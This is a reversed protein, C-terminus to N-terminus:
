TQYLSAALEPRGIIRGEGRRRTFGVADFHELIEIALKRGSKIHNKFNVVTIDTGGDALAMLMAAYEAMVYPLAYRNDNLKVAHGRRAASQLCAVVRKKEMGTAAVLESVLPLQLQRSELERELKRWGALEASALTPVFDSTKIRGSALHLKGLRLQESLVARFLGTPVTSHLSTQLEIAKIGQQEPNERQSAAVATVVMKTASAWSLPALAYDIGEFTFHRAAITQLLAEREEPRLNWAQCFKTLNIPAPSGQLLDNLAAQPSDRTMAKLYHLRSTHAKGSRPALPDLVTGGGLTVSESDDRLLFRDGRCVALPLELLLQALAQAGPQLRNVGNDNILYLRAPLRRAGIYLKVPSLHKIAFPANPLLSIQVDIRESLPMEKGSVLADGRNIQDKTISGSVNLACRDGACGMAADRDQVRLSRVRLSVGQPLLQLEDGVAVKGSIATGTLVLGTGKLLFARDVSLRFNGACSRQQHALAREDLYQQLAAIGEGSTNSVPFIARCYDKGLLAQVQQAVASVRKPEVRDIKSIVVITEGIGLLRLVDLHEQTQPMVGDDAAVVLMALDIGSVGAIMTNIFRTHGPVDIFGLTTSNDLSRYAFGLNITLGRRKEEALRDTDVGTLQRILATKGHDVHGATAVIM